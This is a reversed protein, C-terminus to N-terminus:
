NNLVAELTEVGVSGAGIILLKLNELKLFVPLLNNGARHAQPGVEKIEGTSIENM